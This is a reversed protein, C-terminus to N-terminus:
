SEATSHLHPRLEDLAPEVDVTESFGILHLNSVALDAVVEDNPGRLVASRM